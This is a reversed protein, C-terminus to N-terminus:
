TYLGESPSGLLTYLDRIDYLRHNNRWARHGEGIEHEYYIVIKCDLAVAHERRAGESREWDTLMFLADAHQLWLIDGEIFADEGKGCGDLLGVMGATNLHPCFVSFGARWLERAVSAARDRNQTIVHETGDGRLPGAIYAKRM